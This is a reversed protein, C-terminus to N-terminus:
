TDPAVYVTIEDFAGKIMTVTYDGGGGGFSVGNGTTGTPNAVINIIKYGAAPTVYMHVTDGIGAVTASVSSYTADGVKFGTVSAAGPNETNDAANRIKLSTAFTFTKKTCYASVESNSWPMDFTYESGSVLTADYTNPKGTDINNRFVARTLDYNDDVVWVWMSVKTNAPLTASTVGDTNVASKITVHNGLDKVTYALSIAAAPSKDAAVKVSYNKYTFLPYVTIDADPMDFTTGNSVWVPTPSTAATYYLGYFDYEANAACSVTVDDNAVINYNKPSYTGTTAGPALGLSYGNVSISASGWATSFAPDLTIKRQSLGTFTASITVDAAPMTFATNGETLSKTGGGSWTATGTSLVYSTDSTVVVNIDAGAVLKDVPQMYKNFVEVKGHETNLVTIKYPTQTYSAFIVVDFGPMTFSGGLESTKTAAVPFNYDPAGSGNDKYVKFSDLTYGTLKSATVEVTMGARTQTVPNGAVKATYSAAPTLKKGDISNVGYNTVKVKHYTAEVFTAGIFIKSEPMTFKGDYGLNTTKSPNFYNEYSWQAGKLEYGEDPTAVVTVPAYAKTGVGTVDIGNVYARVKGHPTYVAEIMFVETTVFGVDVTVDCAPMKFTHSASVSIKTGDAATVTYSGVEFKKDAVAVITVTEGAAAKTAAKGGVRMEFSGNKSTAAKIAYTKSNSSVSGASASSSSSSSSGSSSSGSGAPVTGSGKITTSVPVMFSSGKMISNLNSKNNIAKLLSENAGYSLGYSSCISSATEGSAVTHAVVAYCSTGVPPTTASPILITSGAKVNNWNGIGNIDKIMSSYTGFNVGLSNCVDAVTDGSRMQYKILYYSVTDGVAINAASAAGPVAAASSGVSVASAAAATSASAVYADTPLKVTFGVPLSRYDTINNIAAILKQKAYFDIGNKQCAKLVTDGDKLTYTVIGAEAAASVTFGVLLSVIMCVMLIM